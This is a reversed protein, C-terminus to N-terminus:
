GTTVKTSLLSPTAPAMPVMPIMPTVPLVGLALEGPHMHTNFTNVFQNLYQLLDDGFVLPHSSNEVLEIRTAEVVVKTNANIRIKGAQVEISIMNNGNEDSVTLKEADDDFCIMLGKESRLMRRQPKAESGAENQPLENDAWYGGTWIAYSPDGGEFEVWVGAGPEPILYSGVNKGTYPLCPVAWVELDQLVAPVKVKIRGRKTSDDNDTVLGRYKGFHRHRIWYLVKELDTNDM